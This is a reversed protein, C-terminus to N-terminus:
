VNLRYEEGSQKVDEIQRLIFDNEARVSSILLLKYYAPFRTSMSGVLVDYMSQANSRGRKDEFFAVEDGVAAFINYGRWARSGSHGSIARINKRPFWLDSKRAVYSGAFYESSEIM